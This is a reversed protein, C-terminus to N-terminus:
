ITTTLKIPQIFLFIWSSGDGLQLDSVFPDVYHQMMHLEGHASNSSVVKYINLFFPFIEKLIHIKCLLKVILEEWCHQLFCYTASRMKGELSKLVLFIIPIDM